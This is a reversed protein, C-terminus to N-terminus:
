KEWIIRGINHREYTKFIDTCFKMMKDNKERKALEYRSLIIQLGFLAGRKFPSQDRPKIRHIESTLRALTKNLNLTKM